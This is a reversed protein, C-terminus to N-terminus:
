NKKIKGAKKKRIFFIQAEYSFFDSLNKPRLGFLSIYFLRKEAFM